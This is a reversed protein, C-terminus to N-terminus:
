QRNFQGNDDDFFYPKGFVIIETEWFLKFVDLNEFLSYQYRQGVLANTKYRGISLLEDIFKLQGFPPCM